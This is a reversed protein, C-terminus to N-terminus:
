RVRLWKPGKKQERKRKHSKLQEPHNNFPKALLPLGIILDSFAKSRLVLKTEMGCCLPITLRVTGIGDVVAHDDQRTHMAKTLGRPPFKRMQFWQLHFHAVQEILHALGRVILLDVLYRVLDLLQSAKHLPLKCASFHRLGAVWGM